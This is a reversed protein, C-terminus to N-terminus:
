AGPQERATLWLRTDFELQHYDADMHQCLAYFAKDHDRERLHALEHIVIMRLFAEPAEIFVRAIRIERKGKLQRGQVRSVATHTGLAQHLQQLRGDFAVKALPPATRMYRAKLAGVYEVLAGDNRVDHAHPYRRALYAQAHGQDLLAQASALLPPPYGNLYPLAAM